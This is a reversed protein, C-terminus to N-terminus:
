KKLAFPVRIDAFTFFRIPKVSIDCLRQRLHSGRLRIEMYGREGYLAHTFIRPECSFERSERENKEM